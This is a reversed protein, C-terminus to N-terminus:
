RIPNESAHSSAAAAPSSAPPTLPLKVIFRSGRGTESEVEIQGRHHQVVAAHVLALGQGSGKGVPKTTFFPEFIRDRIAPPIGTGTDEVELIAWTEECRTRITIKGRTEGRLKLADAIAHAANIILNLMVQNLEDVVVPVEPLEPDLETVADAIYKWEHRSVVLSREVLRNLDEAALHPTGPHAFEKLSCVTRGVRALGELSQQLCRPIEELLYDLEASQEAAAVQRAAAACDDHIAAASGLARYAELVARINICAGTLFHLNDTIFQTPTNVEHAIGAALQGIAEMKQAQQLKVQMELRSQEALKRETIDRSVGFIGILAGAADFLPLKTTSVWRRRGDTWTELEEIGIIPERNQLIRQEDAFAAGAHEASFFDFDTKGVAQAPDALGFRQAQARNIRVFRSATDKFYIQDPAYDLLARLLQRDTYGRDGAENALPEVAHMGVFERDRFRLLRFSAEAEFEGGWVDRLDCRGRWRGLVRAQPLIESDFRQLSSLGISERLTLGDLRGKGGPNLRERAAPNFSVVQLDPLAYLAIIAKAEDVFSALLRRSATESLSRRQPHAMAAGATASLSRPTTSMAPAMKGGYRCM